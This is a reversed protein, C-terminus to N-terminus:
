LNSGFLQINIDIVIISNQIIYKLCVNVLYNLCM